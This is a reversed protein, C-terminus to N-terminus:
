TPAVQVVVSSADVALSSEDMSFAVIAGSAPAGAYLLSSEEFFALSAGFQSDPAPQVGAQQLDPGQLRSELQVQVLGGVSLECLRLM